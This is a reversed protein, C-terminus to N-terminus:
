QNALGDPEQKIISLYKNYKRTLYISAEDYMYKLFKLVDDYKYIALRFGVGDEYVFSVIGLVNLIYEKLDLLFAKNVSAFDCRMSGNRREYICGDGDFYGRIFHRMDKDSMFNPFLFDRTKSETIGHSVLDKYMEMSFIRICSMEVVNDPKTSIKCKRERDIIKYNGHISKNFKRLHERDRSSLEIGVVGANSAENKSIWGDAAIFGYWYSVEEGMIHEFFRYDCHYPSKKLGIKAAKVKVSNQTRNLHEAINSLTETMYNNRLYELEEETWRDNKVLQLEFCIARIAGDSVGFHAGIDKYSMNEYNDRIYEKEENTWKHM